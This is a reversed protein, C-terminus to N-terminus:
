AVLEGIERQGQEDRVQDIAEKLHQAAGSIILRELAHIEDKSYVGSEKILEIYELRADMDLQAVSSLMDFLKYAAESELCRDVILALRENKADITTGTREVTHGRGKSPTAIGRSTRMRADTGPLANTELLGACSRAGSSPQIGGGEDM